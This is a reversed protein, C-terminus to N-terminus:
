RVEGQRLWPLKPAVFDLPANGPKTLDFYWNGTDDKDVYVLTKFGVARSGDRIGAQGDLANVKDLTLHDWVILRPFGGTRPDGAEQVFVRIDRGGAVLRQELGEGYGRRRKAQCEFRENQVKNSACDPLPDAAAGALPLLALGIVAACYRLLSAIIQRPTQM